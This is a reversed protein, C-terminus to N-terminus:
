EAPAADPPSTSASQSAGDDSSRDRSANREALGKEGAGEQGPKSAKPAVSPQADRRGWSRKAHRTNKPPHYDKLWEVDVREAKRRTKERILWQGRKNWGTGHSTTHCFTCGHAGMPRAAEEFLPYASAQLGGGLVVVTLSLISRRVWPRVPHRFRV